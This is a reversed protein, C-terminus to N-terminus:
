AKLPLVLEKHFDTLTVLAGDEAIYVADEVRVGYGKEPYYLGPEITFVNGVQFEDSKSLHSIRPKEHIQLGVGHGLSHVYGEATGPTDRATPHGKGEFYDLVAEQMLHTPKNVGFAEIAIDFADMVTNFTAQVDDPAYGICWTRTTDHHYGGGMERPFLDFVIAQGLKLPMEAQGRSHPFGADRGQAFIMGTDELSRDLLERRIFRKVDGITLAAGDEKILTEGEARHGSIYDWTAQLVESTRAAVSKIRTIEDADKTIAAEDFLTTGMEGVFEYQPYAAQLLKTLEMIINTHYVGYIGVKGAEVGLHSLCKSWLMVEAKTHNGEAEKLMDHWGMDNLSLVKAGTTAAEEVEMPNAFLVPADGYKKMAMGGTIHVNGVLYDLPPSYNEDKVIVLAALDREQMLRDLDAKM